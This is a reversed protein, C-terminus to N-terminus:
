GAARRQAVIIGGVAVAVIAGAAIKRPKDGYRRRLYLRAGKWVVFGLIRYGM